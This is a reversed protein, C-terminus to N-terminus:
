LIVLLLLPIGVLALLMCLFIWPSDFAPSKQPDSGPRGTAKQHRWCRRNPGGVPNQCTKRQNIQYGCIFRTRRM